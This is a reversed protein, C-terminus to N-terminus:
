VWSQITKVTRISLVDLQSAYHHHNTEAELLTKSTSIDKHRTPEGALVSMGSRTALTSLHFPCIGIEVLILGIKSRSVSRERM